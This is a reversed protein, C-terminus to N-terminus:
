PKAKVGSIIMRPSDLGYPAGHYDGQCTFVRLGAQHLLTALEEFTYLRVSEHITEIHQNDKNVEVQKNVRRRDFYIWRTEVFTYENVSRVTEKKLTRELSLPNLYDMFFRGGMTLVRAIEGATALNDADEYFYGFSTFFSFVVDFATNFPLRRMDARVLRTSPKLRDRAMLLLEASYDIGTLTAGTEELTALHRGTGCCLDLAREERQLAVSACAFRAEPAAAEITRHAYLIPYLSGFAAAYWREQEASEKHGSDNNM